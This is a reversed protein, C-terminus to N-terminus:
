ATTRQINFYNELNASYNVMEIENKRQRKQYAQDDNCGLLRLHLSRQMSDNIRAFPYYSRVVSTM